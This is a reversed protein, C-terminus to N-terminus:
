ATLNITSNSPNKTSYDKKDTSIGRLMCESIQTVHMDSGIEWNENLYELPTKGLPLASSKLIIVQGDVALMKGSSKLEKVADWRQELREIRDQIDSEYTSKKSSTVYESMRFFKKFLNDEVMKKLDAYSLKKSDM